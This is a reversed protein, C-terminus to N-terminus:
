QILSIIVGRALSAGYRLAVQIDGKKLSPFEALIEEETMNEALSDLIVSIMLRTGKICAKGHCIRPDASIRTKWNTEMMWEKM